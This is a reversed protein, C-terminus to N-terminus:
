FLTQTTCQTWLDHSHRLYDSINFYVSLATTHKDVAHYKHTHIGGNDEQLSHQLLHNWSEM